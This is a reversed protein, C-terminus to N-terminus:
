EGNDDDMIIGCKSMLELFEEETAELPLGSVYVNNNTQQDIDFWEKKEEQKRKKGITGSDAQKEDVKGPKSNNEAGNTAAAGDNNKEPREEKSQVNVLPNHEGTATFGYNAQYMAIFDDDIQSCFLRTFEPWDKRDDM